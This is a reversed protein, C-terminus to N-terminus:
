HNKKPTRSSKTEYCNKNTILKIISKTPFPQKTNGNKQDPHQQMHGFVFQIASKLLAICGLLCFELITEVM